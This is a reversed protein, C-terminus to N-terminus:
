FESTLTRFHTYNQPTWTQLLKTGTSKRKGCICKWFIIKLTHGFTLVIVSSFIYLCFNVSAFSHLPSFFQGGWYAIAQVIHLSFIDCGCLLQWPIFKVSNALYTTTQRILLFWLEDILFIILTILVYLVTCDMVLDILQCVHQAICTASIESLTNQHLDSIDRVIYKNEKPKTQGHDDKNCVSVEM